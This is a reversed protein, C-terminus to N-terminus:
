RCLESLWEYVPRLQEIKYKLNDTMNDTMHVPTWITLHPSVEMMRIQDGNKPPTSLTVKQLNRGRFEQKENLCGRAEILISRWLYETLKSLPIENGGFYKEIIEPRSTVQWADRVFRLFLQDPNQIKGKLFNLSPKNIESLIFDTIPWNSYKKGELNVGLRIKEIDPNISLNWQIGENGDSMGFRPKNM